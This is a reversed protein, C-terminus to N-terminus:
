KEDAGIDWSGSRVQGDIDDNFLGVGPDAIGQNLAVTDMAALHYDHNASDAFAVWLANRSHTGTFDADVSSINYDSLPNVYYWPFFGNACNQTINNQIVVSDLSGEIGTQCNVITNNLILGPSNPSNFHIAPNSKTSGPYQFGYIINNWLSVAQAPNTSCYIRIGGNGAVDALQDSKIITNSVSLIGNQENYEIADAADVSTVTHIQFGDISVYASQIFIGDTYNSAANAALRMNYASDTWKGIHRQSVGVEDLAVPTYIHIDHTADTNWGSVVAETTDTGDGYCAFRLAYDAAVLDTTKLHLSDAASSAGYLADVAGELSNFARVIQVAQNAFSIRTTGPIRGNASSNQVNFSTASNRRTIYYRALGVQVEDGVGINDAAPASLTLVGNSASANGNHLPAAAVGVSYFIALLGVPRAETTDAPIVVVSDAIVTNSTSGSVAYHISPIAGAPMSDIVIRGQSVAEGDIKVKITTGPVYVYGNITDATNSISVIVAGPAKLTASDLSLSDQDQIGIDRILLRTRENLHIAEINYLGSDPAYLVYDGSEGTTDILSDPIGGNVVPNFDAPVLRVQANSAPTGQNDIITGSIKANGVHSITGAVEPKSPACCVVLVAGIALSLLFSVQKKM